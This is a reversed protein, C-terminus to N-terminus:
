DARGGSRCCSRGMVGYRDELMALPRPTTAESNGVGGQSWAVKWLPERDGPDRVSPADAGIRPNGAGILVRARPDAARGLARVPGARAQEKPHGHPSSGGVKLAAVEPQDGPDGTSRLRAM